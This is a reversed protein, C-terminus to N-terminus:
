NSTLAVTDYINKKRYITKIIKTSSSSSANYNNYKKNLFSITKQKMIENKITILDNNNDKIYLEYNKLKEINKHKLLQSIANNDNFLIFELAKGSEGYKVTNFIDDNNSEFSMYDNLFLDLDSKIVGRPSKLNFCKIKRFKIHCNEHLLVLGIKTSHNQLNPSNNVYSHRLELTQLNFFIDKSYGNTFANDNSQSSYIFFYKNDSYNFLLHIKIISLPIYKLKYCVTRSFYDFGKGSNLQNFLFTLLSKQKLNEVIEKYFLYGQIFPSESTLKNYEVIDIFSNKNKQLTLFTKLSIM